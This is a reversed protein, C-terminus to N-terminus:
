PGRSNFIIGAVGIIDGIDIKKTLLKYQEKGLNDQTLYLQMRGSEDQIHLFSAKGMIRKFLIRGAVSVKDKTKEEPKLKAHKKQIDAAHHTRDFTYPYPDIGKEKIESMKRFMNEDIKPM